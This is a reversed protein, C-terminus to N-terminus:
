REVVGLCRLQVTTTLKQPVSTAWVQAELGLRLEIEVADSDLAAPLVVEYHNNVVHQVEITHNAFLQISNVQLFQDKDSSLNGTAHALELHIRHQAPGRLRILGNSAPLTPNKSIGSSVFLEGTGDLYVWGTDGSRLQLTGLQM